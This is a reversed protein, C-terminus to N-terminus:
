FSLAWEYFPLIEIKINEEYFSYENSLSIFYIQKINLEKAKPLIKKIRLKILDIDLTPTSLFALKQEKLYFDFFKNYFINENLKFLENLILNDFIKKFDKKTSLINKLGFDQFFIKKINKEDHQIFHLISKNELEKINKYVSDKSTKINNKLEKFIQNISFESGLNIAIIKLIEIQLENFYLRLLNNNFLLDNTIMRGNQLFLGLMSSVPINKKNISIFEEFDLYDLNIQTFNKIYFDKLTTSIIIQQKINSLDIIQNLNYFIIIKITKEKELFYKLNSIDEIKLRLDNFNLFLIEEDKFDSLYNLILAKKGCNFPGKLIINQDNLKIKRDFSFEFKPHNEYFFNLINM